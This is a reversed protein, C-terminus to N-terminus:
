WPRAPTSWLWHQIDGRQIHHQWRCIASMQLECVRAHQEHFTPLPNTRTCRGTASWIHCSSKESCVGDVAASQSINKLFDKICDLCPGKIGYYQLKELPHKSCDMIALDYQKVKSSGAIVWWSTDATTECSCKARFGHQSDTLLGHDKVYQVISKIIIHECVKCCM